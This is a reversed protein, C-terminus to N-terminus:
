RRRRAQREMNQQRESVAQAVAFAILATVLGPFVVGFLAGLAITTKAAEDLALLLM